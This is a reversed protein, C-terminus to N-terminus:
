RARSYCLWSGQEPLYNGVPFSDKVKYFVGNKKFLPTLNAEGQSGCGRILFLAIFILIKSNKSSFIM